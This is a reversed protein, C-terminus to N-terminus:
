KLAAAMVAAADIRKLGANILQRVQEGAPTRRLCIYLQKDELLRENFHLQPAVRATQEDHQALYAFVRRDVVALPVRRAAVKLLNHKDDVTTSTRQLGARVRRDFAETNVYDQVVGITYAGLDELVSWHVPADAREVLGLPGSGIPDTLLFDRRVDPSDYEPFYGVFRSPSRALAVARSWPYFVVELRYGVAALAARVVATTAGGAPLEAGTYPPWDLSTLHVTHSAQDLTAQAPPAPEAHAPAALLALAV